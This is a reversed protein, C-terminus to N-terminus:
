PQTAKAIAADLFIEVPVGGGSQADKHARRCYAICDRAMKLAELLEPAAAILRAYAIAEERTTSITADDRSFVNAIDADDSAITLPRGANGDEETRGEELFRWRKPTSM